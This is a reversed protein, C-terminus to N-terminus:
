KNVEFKGDKFTIKEFSIDHTVIITSVGTTNTQKLAQYIMDKMVELRKAKVVHYPSKPDPSGVKIVLINGSDLDLKQLEAILIEDKM